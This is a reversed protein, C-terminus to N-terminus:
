RQNTSGHEALTRKPDYATTSYLRPTTNSRVLLKELYSLPTSSYKNLTYHLTTKFSLYLSSPTAVVLRCWQLAMQM